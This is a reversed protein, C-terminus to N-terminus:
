LRPMQEFRYARYEGIDRLLHENLHVMATRNMHDIRAQRMGAVSRLAREMFQNWVSLLGSSAPREAAESAYTSQSTTTSM